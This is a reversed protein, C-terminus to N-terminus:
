KAIWQTGDSVYGPFGYSAGDTGKAPSSNTDPMEAQANGELKDIVSQLTTKFEEESQALNLKTVAQALLAREADSVQGQGKLYKVAELSLQSKVANFDNVLNFQDTGPIKSTLGGGGWFRSAGVAGTGKGENFKTMLSKANALAAKGLETTTPKGEASNGMTQLAVTVANRLGAQSAPIETIKATGNQIREAWSDVVTNQGPVYTGGGTGTGKEPAYTKAKSAVLKNEGTIPDYQYYDQGESLSFSNDKIAKANAEAEAADQEKKKSLYTNIIDQHSIGYGKLASLDEKSLSNYDIGAVLLGQVVNGVYTQNYTKKDKNYAVTAEYGSKKANRKRELETNADQNARSMINAIASAQSELVKQENSLNTARASETMGTGFSSGILGRRAQVANTEGLRGIGQQQQEALLRSYADKSANIEGQYQAMVGSRINAEEGPTLNTDVPADPANYTGLLSGLSTDTPTPASYPTGNANPVLPNVSVGNIRDTTEPYAM